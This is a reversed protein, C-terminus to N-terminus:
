RACDNYPDHRRAQGQDPAAQVRRHRVVSTSRVCRSSPAPSASPSPPSSASRRASSRGAATALNRGYCKACIGQKSECTLVLPDQGERHRFRQSPRSRSTSARRGCWSAKPNTPDHHRRLAVHGYIRDGLRSSKTKAKTSPRCRSATPPAATRERIIVDQAVDVLKRTMYGSDATKLATDALGKRAGHTSIFYELVTLGERFNSLIPKEIIDGSPKAMLGRVGALQKVQQRNGRAGSDVMLYVPNYERARTTGADQVHRERDSRDCADLHRHDQQLARRLHHRGQSAAERGRLRSRPSTSRM